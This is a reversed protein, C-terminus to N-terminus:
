YRFKLQIGEKPFDENNLNSVTIGLLRLPQHIPDQDFLKIAEAFILEKSKIFLNLTTSRTHTEFNSFRYKLTVTRGALESKQLRKSVEESMKELFQKKEAVAILDERFTREAGISKRKRNPQVPNNHIGRVVNYYYAGAKGFHSVLEEENKQKLDRGKFVGMKWMKSATAKGIGYFKEIPLEELFPLVEEPAILKQGNPKNIDSAIKALFKNVSIGASATLGTTEFIRSRIEYAILTASNIGKHNETVDLYAEDLSLPEVLDTYEHFIGRITNSISKYREFRPQVFIIHPCLEIAKSGPMASRVGYKRAEYSATAVVGRVGGGGVAIAKGRLEPNDYQEVSAYFSDM